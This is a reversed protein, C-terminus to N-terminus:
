KVDYGAAKLLEVARAQVEEESAFKAGSDPDIGSEVLWQRALEVAQADIFALKEASAEKKGEAKLRERMAREGKAGYHGLAGGAVAGLAGGILAKKGGGAGLGGLAAGGAGGTIGGLTTQLGGHARMRSSTDSMTEHFGKDGAEKEEDKEDDKGKSKSFPNPKASKEDDEEAALKNIEDIFGRAAVRGFEDFQEIQALKEQESAELAAVKTAYEPDTMEEAVQAFCADYDEKSQKTMDIGEFAARKNLEYAVDAATLDPATTTMAEKTEVPETTEATKGLMDSLLGAVAEESLADLDVGEDKALKQLAHSAATIRTDLDASQEFLNTIQDEM